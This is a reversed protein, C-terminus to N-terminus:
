YLEEQKTELYDALARLKKPDDGAHGLSVNCNNCIVGRIKGSDHDHDICLRSETPGCIECEDVAEYMELEAVTIGYQKARVRRANKTVRSPDASLWVRMYAAM